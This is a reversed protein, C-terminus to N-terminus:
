EHLKKNENPIKNAFGSDKRYHHLFLETHLTTTAGQYTSNHKNSSQHIIM